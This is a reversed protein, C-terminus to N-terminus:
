ELIRGVKADGGCEISPEAFEFLEAADPGHREILGKCTKFASGYIGVDLGFLFARPNNEQGSGVRWGDDAGVPVVLCPEVLWRQM